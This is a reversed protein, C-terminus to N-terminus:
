SNPEHQVIANDICSDRQSESREQVCQRLAQRYSKEEPSVNEHEHMASKHAHRMAQAHMPEGATSQQASKNQQDATGQASANSNTSMKDTPQESPQASTAKSTDKQAPMRSTTDPAYQAGAAGVFLALGAGLLLRYTPNTM